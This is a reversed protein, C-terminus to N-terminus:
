TTVQDVILKYRGQGDPQVDAVNYIGGNKLRTFRDDQRPPQGPVFYRIDVSIYPKTMTAAIASAWGDATSRQGFEPQIATRDSFIAIVPVQSRTPDPVLRDNVTPQHMPNFVFPEGGCHADVADSLQDELADWNWAM